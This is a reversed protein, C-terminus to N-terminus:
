YMAGLEILLILVNDIDFYAIKRKRIKKPRLLKEPRSGSEVESRFLFRSDHDTPILAERYVVPTSLVCMYQVYSM